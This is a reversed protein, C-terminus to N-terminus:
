TSNTSGRPFNPIQTSQESYKAFILTIFNVQITWAKVEDPGATFFYELQLAKYGQVIIKDLASFYLLLNFFQLILLIETTIELFIVDIQRCRSVGFVTGM